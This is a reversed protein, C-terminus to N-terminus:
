ICSLILAQFQQSNKAEIGSICHYNIHLNAIGLKWRGKNLVYLRESIWTHIWVELFYSLQGTIQSPLQLRSHSPTPDESHETSLNQLRLLSQTQKTERLKKM